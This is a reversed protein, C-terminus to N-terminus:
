PTQGGGAQDSKIVKVDKPPVFKFLHDQVVKAEANQKMNLFTFHNVNGTAELIISEKV